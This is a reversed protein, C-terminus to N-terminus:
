NAGSSYARDILLLLTEAERRNRTEVDPCGVGGQSTIRRRVEEIDALDPCDTAGGLKECADAAWFRAADMARELDLRDYSEGKVHRQYLWRVICAGFADGAGTTDKMKQITLPLAIILKYDGRRPTHHGM